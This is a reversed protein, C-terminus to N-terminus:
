LFPNTAAFTCVLDKFVRSRIQLMTSRPKAPRVAELTSTYVARMADDFYHGGNDNCCYDRQILYFLRLHDECVTVSDRIAKQHMHLGHLFTTLAPTTQVSSKVKIRSAIWDLTSKVEQFVDDLEGQVSSIALEFPEGLVQRVSELLVNNWSTRAQTKTEHNSIRSLLDDGIRLRMKAEVHCKILAMCRETQARFDNALLYAHTKSCESLALKFSSLLRPITNTIYRTMDQKIRDASLTAICQMLGIIECRGVDIPLNEQIGLRYGSTNITYDQASVCFIKQLGSRREHIAAKVRRNREDIIIEKMKLAIVSKEFRALETDLIGPTDLKTALRAHKKELQRLIDAEHPTFDSEVEAGRADESKTCTTVIVIASCQPMYKETRDRNIHNIDDLGPTDAIVVNCRTVAFPGGISSSNTQIPLSLTMFFDCLRLLVIITVVLVNRVLKVFPWSNHLLQGTTGIKGYTFPTIQTWLQESDRAYMVKQTAQQTATYKKSVWGQLDALREKRYSLPESPGLWQEMSVKDSFRLVHGDGLDHGEPFLATFIDEAAKRKNIVIDLDEEEECPFLGNILHHFCHEITKAFEDLPFLCIDISYKDSDGMFYRYEFVVRTVSKTSDGVKVVASDGLIAGILSSKGDSINGIFAVRASGKIWPASARRLAADLSTTMPVGSRPDLIYKKCRKVLGKAQRRANEFSEHFIIEDTSIHDADPRHQVRRHPSELFRQMCEDPDSPLALLVSNMPALARRRPRESRGRSIDKRHSRAFYQEDFGRAPSQSRSGRPDQHHKQYRDGYSPRRYSDSHGYSNPCGRDENPPHSEPKRHQDVHRSM